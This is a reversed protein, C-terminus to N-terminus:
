LQESTISLLCKGNPKASMQFHYTDSILAAIRLQSRQAAVDACEDEDFIVPDRSIKAMGAISHTM